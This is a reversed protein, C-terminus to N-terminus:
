LVNIIILLRTGSMCDSQLSGQRIDKIYHRTGRLGSFLMNQTEKKGKEECGLWGRLVVGDWVWM